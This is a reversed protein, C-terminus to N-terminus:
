YTITRHRYWVSSVERSLDQGLEYSGADYFAHTDNTEPRDCCPSWLANQYVHFSKPTWYTNHNLSPVENGDYTWKCAPAADELATVTMSAQPKPLIPLIPISALGTVPEKDKKPVYVEHQVRHVSLPESKTSFNTTGLVKPSYHGHAVLAVVGVALAFAGAGIAGRSLTHRDQRQPVVVQM